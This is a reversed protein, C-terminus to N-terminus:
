QKIKFGGIKLELIFGLDKFNGVIGCYDLGEGKAQPGGQGKRKRSM